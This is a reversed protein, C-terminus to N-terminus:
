NIGFKRIFFSHMWFIHKLSVQQLKLKLYLLCLNILHFLLGMSEVAHKAQNEYNTILKEAFSNDLNMSTKPM